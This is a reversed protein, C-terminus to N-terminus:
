YQLLNRCAVGQRLRNRRGLAAGTRWASSSVRRRQARRPAATPEVVEVSLLHALIIWTWNSYPAGSLNRIYIHWGMSGWNASCQLWQTNGTGCPSSAASSYYVTGAGGPTYSFTPLLTNNYARQSWEALSTQTASTVWGPYSSGFKYALNTGPAYERIAGATPDNALAPGALLLLCGLAAVLSAITRM